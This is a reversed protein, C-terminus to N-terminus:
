SNLGLDGAAADLGDVGRLVDATYQRLEANDGAGRAAAVWDVTYAAARLGGLQGLLEECVEQTVNAPNGLYLRLLRAADKRQQEDLRRTGDSLRELADLAEDDYLGRNPDDGTDVVRDPVHVDCDTALMCCREGMSAMGRYGISLPGAGWRSVATARADM